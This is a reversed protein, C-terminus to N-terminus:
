IEERWVQQLQKKVQTGAIYRRYVASARIDSIPEIAASVCEGVAQVLKHDLIQGLLMEEAQKIRLPTPAVAGLAIRSDRVTRDEHFDLAVVGNVVSIALANRRGVKFFFQNDWKRKPLIVAALVEGQRLRTKGPATFFHSLSIRQSGTESVVEMDANLAFAAILGDGAPSANQINGVLTAKNRIPVSGVESCGRCLAPYWYQILQSREIESLRVAAGIRLETDTETIGQMESVEKIDILLSTSLQEAQLLVLVDTGGAYITYTHETRRILEFTDELSKPKEYSFEELM